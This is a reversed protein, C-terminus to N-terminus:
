RGTDLHANKKSQQWSMHASQIKKRASKGHRFGIFQIKKDKYGEFWLRIIQISGPFEIMMTSLDDIGKFPGGTALVGIYKDDIEGSDLLRISGIVRVKVVSGREVQGSLVIIDLPDGDGGAEKDQLTQPILGYNGPYPLFEIRRPKGKRFEWLLNGSIHDVEWKESTGSPIEIVANYFGDSTFNVEDVLHIESEIIFDDRQVLGNDLALLGNAFSFLVFIFVRKM